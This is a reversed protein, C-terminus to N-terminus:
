YSVQECGIVKGLVDLSGSGEVITRTILIYLDRLPFSYDPRIEYGLPEFLDSKNLLGLFAFFM